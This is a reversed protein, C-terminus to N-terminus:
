RKHIPLFTEWMALLISPHRVTMAAATQAGTSGGNDVWESLAQAFSGGRLAQAEQLHLWCFVGESM